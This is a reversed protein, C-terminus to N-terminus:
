AMKARSLRVADYGKPLHATSSAKKSLQESLPITVKKLHKILRGYTPRSARDWFGTRLPPLTAAVYKLLTGVILSLMPLREMATEHHVYHRGGGGSLVYKGTQPIGEIPWRHGYIKLVAEPELSLVTTALILPTDYDPHHFVMVNSKQERLKKKESESIGKLQSELFYVGRYIAVRIEKKDSGIFKKTEDPPTAPILKDKYKRELPRVIKARPITPPRGREGGEKVPVEGKTMGFTCNKDMRIVARAINAESLQVLSFGADFVAIEDVQLVKEVHRYLQQTVKSPENESIDGSVADRLLAVRKGNVEGVLGIMGISLAPIARGSDSDYSKSLLKQVSARSFGTFDVPLVGYAGVRTQKWLGAKIIMENVRERIENLNYSGYTLAKVARRSRAALEDGSLGKTQLFSEIAPMVAGGSEIFYGSVMASLFDCLGLDTGKLAVHSLQEIFSLLHYNVNTPTTPSNKM